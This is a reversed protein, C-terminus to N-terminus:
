TKNLKLLKKLKSLKSKKKWIIAFDDLLNNDPMFGNKIYFKFAYPISVCKITNINSFNKICRLIASGIHSYKKDYTETNIYRPNVQLYDLYFTKKDKIEGLAIGLVKEPILEELNESQTTLAYLGTKPSYRHINNFISKIFGADWSKNIDKLAEIDKASEPSMQVFTAKKSVYKQTKSSLQKITTTDVYKAKFSIEM